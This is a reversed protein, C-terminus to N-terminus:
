LSLPDSYVWRDKFRMDQCSCMVLYHTEASELTSSPYYIVETKNKEFRM